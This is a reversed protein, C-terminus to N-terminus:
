FTSKGWPDGNKISDLIQWYKPATYDSEQNSNENSNGFLNGWDLDRRDRCLGVNVLALIGIKLVM